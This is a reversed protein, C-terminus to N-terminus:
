AVGGKEGIVKLKKALFPMLCGDVTRRAQGMQMRVVDVSQMLKAFDPDRWSQSVSQVARNLRKEMETLATQYNACRKTFEQIRAADVVAVKNTAM